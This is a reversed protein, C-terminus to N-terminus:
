AGVAMSSAAGSRTFTVSWSVKANQDGGQDGMSAYCTWVEYETDGPACFRIQGLSANGIGKALTEVAAQGPDGAGTTPDLLRFGELKLSQGRQMMQGEYEGNSSYDTVDTDKENANSKTFTNIGGIATWSPTAGVAIEFTCGRADYKETAM